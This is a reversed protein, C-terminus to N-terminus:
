STTKKATSESSMLLLLRKKFLRKRALMMTLVGQLEVLCRFQNIVKSVVEGVEKDRSM